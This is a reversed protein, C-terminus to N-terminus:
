LTVEWNGLDSVLCLSVEALGDHCLPVAARSYSQEAFSSDESKRSKSGTPRFVMAILIVGCTM